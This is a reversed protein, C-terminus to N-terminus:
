ARRIEGVIEAVISLGIEQQTQAGIAIGPKTRVSALREATMGRLGLSRLIEQSRKKNAVLAIYPIGVGIAQEIAEEDFRGMSAVVCIQRATEPLRQFDMTRLIGTAEPMEDFTLLPDVVTVRFDLLRMFKVIATAVSERGVLVVDPSEALRTKATEMAPLDFRGNAYIQQLTELDQPRDVDLLVGSDDVEIKRINELHDGFIARCGTDGNLVAIEPFVSRDLLVPNGRFGRYLPILIQPKHQRYDDIIQDITATKVLPQDALVVLTAAARADL